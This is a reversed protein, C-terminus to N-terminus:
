WPSTREEYMVVEVNYSGSWSAVSRGVPIEAFPRAGDETVRRDFVSRETGDSHRVFIDRDGFGRIVLLQGKDVSCLVQYRNGAIIVYPDACPGPIYIDCKAPLRFPNELVVSAGSSYLYDHPYGHPYDLGGIVLDDRSELTASATRVWVPEDTVVTLDAAYMDELQHWDQPSVGPIWCRMYCGNAWLAGPRGTRVDYSLVDALRGREGEPGSCEVRLSMERIDDSFGTIRGGISRHARSTDFIDTEGFHWCGEGFAIEEGTSSVYRIVDIM